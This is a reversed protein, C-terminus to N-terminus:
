LGAPPRLPEPTGSCAQMRRRGCSDAPRRLIRDRAKAYSPGHCKTGLKEFALLGEPSPPSYPSDPTPNYPILNLKAKLRSCIRVLQRAQEPGDNLGGIVLYELTIRERTKLPYSELAALLDDLHWRAARPM